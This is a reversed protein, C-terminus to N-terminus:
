LFKGIKEIIRWNEESKLGQNESYNLKQLIASIFFINRKLLLKLNFV